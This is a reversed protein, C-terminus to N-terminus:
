GRPRVAGTPRPRVDHDRTAEWFAEAGENYHRLTMATIHELDDSPTLM